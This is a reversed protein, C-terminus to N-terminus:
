LPRRIGQDLPVNEDLFLVAPCLPRSAWCRGDEPSWSQGDEPRPCLCLSMLQLRPRTQIHGGDERGRGSECVGDLAPAGQGESTEQNCKNSKGEGAPSSPRSTRLLVVRLTM